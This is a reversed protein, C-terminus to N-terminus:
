GKEEGRTPLNSYSGYIGRLNEGADQNWRLRLQDSTGLAALNDYSHHIPMIPCIATSLQSVTYVITATLTDTRRIQKENLLNM